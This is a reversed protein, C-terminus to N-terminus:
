NRRIFRQRNANVPSLHQKTDEIANRLLGEGAIVAEIIRRSRPNQLFCLSANVSAGGNRQSGPALTGRVNHKRLKERQMIIPRMFYERYSSALITRAKLLPCTDRVFCTSYLFRVGPARTAPCSRREHNVVYRSHSMMSRLVTMLRPAINWEAFTDGITRGPAPSSCLLRSFHQSYPLCSRHSIASTIDREKRTM